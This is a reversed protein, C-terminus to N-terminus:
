RRNALEIQDPSENEQVISPGQAEMQYCFM